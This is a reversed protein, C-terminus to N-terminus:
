AMCGTRLLMTKKRYEFSGGEDESSFGAEVTMNCVPTAALLTLAFMMGVILKKLM